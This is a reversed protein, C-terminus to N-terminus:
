ASAAKGSNKGFDAFGQGTIYASAAGAIGFALEPTLELGAYKAVAPVAAGLVATVFKKSQWIPKGAPATGDGRNKGFDALGQGLVYAFLPVLVQVVQGMDLQVTDPLFSNIVPVAVGVIGLWWKKSQWFNKEQKAAAQGM